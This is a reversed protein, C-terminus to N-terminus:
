RARRPTAVSAEYFGSGLNTVPIFIQAHTAEFASRRWVDNDFRSVVPAFRWRLGSRPLWETFVWHMFADIELTAGEYVFRVCWGASAEWAELPPLTTRCKHEAFRLCRYERNASAGSFGWPPTAAGFAWRESSPAIEFFARWGAEIAQADFPKVPLSIAFFHSADVLEPTGRLAHPRSGRADGLMPASRPAREKKPAQGARVASPSRKIARVFARRFAESSAYGAEIAITLLTKEPTYVLDHAARELRLTRLYLVPSKGTVLRVAHAFHFPDYGSRQAMKELSWPEDLSAQVECMVHLVARYAEDSVTYDYLIMM